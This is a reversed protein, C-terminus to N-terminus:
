GSFGHFASMVLIEALNGCMRVCMECVRTKLSKVSIRRKNVTKREFIARGSSRLTARRRCTSVRHQFLSTLSLTMLYQPPVKTSLCLLARKKHVLASNRQVAVALRADLPTSPPCRPQHSITWGWTRTEVLDDYPTRKASVMACLWELWWRIRSISLIHFVLWIYIYIFHQTPQFLESISCLYDGSMMMM